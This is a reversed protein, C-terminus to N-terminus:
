RRRGFRPRKPLDDDDSTFFAQMAADADADMPGLPDDDAAKRLEDLFGDDRPAPGREIVAVPQTPPGGEPADPRAGGPSTPAGATATPTAPDDDAPFLRASADASSPDTASRPVESPPRPPGSPTTGGSAAGPARGPLPAGGRAPGSPVARDPVTPVAPGRTAGPISGPARGLDNPAPEAAPAADAGTTEAALSPGGPTGATDGTDAADATDDAGAAGTAADTAPARDTADAAGAADSSDDAGASGKATDAAPETPGPAGIPPRAAPTATAGIVTEIPAAQLTPRPPPQMRAPDDLVEILLDAGARLRSRVETLHGELAEVDAVLLVRVDELRTVQEELERTESSRRATIEDEVAALRKAAARNADEIVRAAKQEAGSVLDAAEKNAEKVTEDATRQALLLTKKLTEALEDEDASGGGMAVHAEADLARKEAASAARQAEAVRREADDARRNAERVKDQLKVVADGLKELFNDVEVPDYGRKAENFKIDTLQTATADM